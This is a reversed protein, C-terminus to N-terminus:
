SLFQQHVSNIKRRTITLVWEGSLYLFKITVGGVDFTDRPGYIERSMSMFGSSIREAISNKIHIFFEDLSLRLFQHKGAKGWGYSLVYPTMSPLDLGVRVHKGMSDTLHYDKWYVERPRVHMGEPPDVFNDLADDDEITDTPITSEPTPTGAPVAAPTPHQAEVSSPGQDLFPTTTVEPPKQDSNCIETCTEEFDEMTLGLEEVIDRLVDRPVIDTTKEKGPALTAQKQKTKSLSLTLPRKPM